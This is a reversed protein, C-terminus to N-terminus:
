LKRLQGRRGVGRQGARVAAAFDCGGRVSGRGPVGHMRRQQRPEDLKLLQWWSLIATGADGIRLLAGGQMALLQHQREREPVRWEPLRLVDQRGVRQFVYGTQLESARHQRPQM